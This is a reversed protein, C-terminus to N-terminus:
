LEEKGPKRNKIELLEVDFVLTAGGPIVGGAGRSGYGLEPPITLRRQEGPCMDLLGQDWGKIVQGAGVKFVFPQGRKRSSDFEKGTSALRGDYHMSLQDKAQSKILCSTPKHVVEVQLGQGGETTSTSSSAASTATAFSAYGLTAVGVSLMALYVSNPVRM